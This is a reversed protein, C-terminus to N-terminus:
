IGRVPGQLPIHVKSSVSTHRVPAETKPEITKQAVKRAYGVDPVDDAEWAPVLPAVALKTTGEWFRSDRRHRCECGRRSYRAMVVAVPGQVWQPPLHLKPQQVQLVARRSYEAHEQLYKLRYMRPMLCVAPYCRSRLTCPDRSRIMALAHSQDRLVYRPMLHLPSGSIVKPDSLIIGALCTCTKGEM